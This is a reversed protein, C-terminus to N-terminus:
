TLMRKCHVTSFMLPSQEDVYKGKECRELSFWSEGGTHLSGNGISEKIGIACFSFVKSVNHVYTHQCFSFYQFLDSLISDGKPQKYLMQAITVFSFKENEIRLRQEGQCYNYQLGHTKV